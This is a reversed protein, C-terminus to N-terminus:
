NPPQSTDGLRDCLHTRCFTVATSLDDTQHPYAVAPRDILIPEGGPTGSPKSVVRTIELELSIPPRIRLLRDRTFGAPLSAEM